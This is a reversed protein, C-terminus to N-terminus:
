GFAGEYINANRDTAVAVVGPVGPTSNVAKDLVADATAKISQVMGKRGPKITRGVRRKPTRGPVVRDCSLQRSDSSRASRLRCFDRTRVGGSTWSAAIFTAGDAALGLQGSRMRGTMRSTAVLPM